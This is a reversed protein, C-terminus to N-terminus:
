RNVIQNLKSELSSVINTASYDTIVIDRETYDYMKKRSNIAQQICTSISEVKHDATYVTELLPKLLNAAPSDTTTISLIPRNISLYEMLKNSLFVQKEYNSDIDIFLNIKGYMTDLNNTYPIVEVQDRLERFEDTATNVDRTGVLLLKVKEGAKIVASISKLLLAADRTKGFQGIYGVVFDSQKEEEIFRTAPIPNPVVISKKSCDISMMSQQYHLMENTVFTLLDANQVAYFISQLMKKRYQENPSWDKTAPIPDAFHLALPINSKKAVNNGVYFSVAPSGRAYILDVPNDNLIHLLKREAKKQWFFYNIDKHIFDGILSLLRAPRSFGDSVKLHYQDARYNEYLSALVFVEHGLARLGNVINKTSKGSSTVGFAYSIVLIKM